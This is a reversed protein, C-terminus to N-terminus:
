STFNYTLDRAARQILINKLSTLSRYARKECNWIKMVANYVYYLFPCRWYYVSMRLTRTKRVVARYEESVAIEDWDDDDDGTRRRLWRLYGSDDVEV